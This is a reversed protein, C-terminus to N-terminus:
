RSCRTTSRAAARRRRHDARDDEDAQDVQRHGARQDAHRGPETRQHEIERAAARRQMAAEGALRRRHVAFQDVHDAVHAHHAREAGREALLPADAGRDADLHARAAGAQDVQLPQPQDMGHDGRRQDGAHDAPADQQPLLALRRDAVEHQDGREREADQVARAVERHRQDIQRLVDRPQLLRDARQQGLVFQRVPRIGPRQQRTGALHRELLHAEGIGAARRHQAVEVQGDLRALADAQDAVRAGALGGHQRQQLAEVVDLPPRM